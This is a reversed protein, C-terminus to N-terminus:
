EEFMPTLGDMEEAFLEGLDVNANFAKVEKSESKVVENTM